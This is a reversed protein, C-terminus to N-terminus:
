DFVLCFVTLLRQATGIWKGSSTIKGLDTFKLLKGLFLLVGYRRAIGCCGGVREITNM